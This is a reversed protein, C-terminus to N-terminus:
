GEKRKRFDIVDEKKEFIEGTEEDFDEFGVDSFDLQGKIEGRKHEMISINDNELNKSVFFNTQVGIEPSLTVSVDAEVAVDERDEDLPKMTIKLTVTRKKDPVVNPDLINRAVKELARDIKEQVAGGCLTALTLRENHMHKKRMKKTATKHCSCQRTAVADWDSQKKGSDVPVKVARGCIQCFGVKFEEYGM